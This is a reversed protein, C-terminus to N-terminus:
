LGCKHTWNHKTGFGVYGDGSENEKFNNLMAEIELGSLHKPLGKTVITGKKFTNVEFRYSSQQTNLM